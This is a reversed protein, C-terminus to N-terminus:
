SISGTSKFSLIGTRLLVPRFLTLIDSVTFSYSFYPPNFLFQPGMCLPSWIDSCAVSALKEICAPKTAPVNKGKKHGGYSLKKEGYWWYLILLLKLRHCYLYPDGRRLLTGQRPPCKARSGKSSSSRRTDELSNNWDFSQALKTLSGHFGSYYLFSSLVQAAAAKFVELACINRAM